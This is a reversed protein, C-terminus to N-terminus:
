RPRVTPGDGRSRRLVARQRGRRVHPGQRGQRDGQRRGRRRRRVRRRLGSRRGHARDGASGAAPQRLGRQAGAHPLDEAGPPEPGPGRALRRLKEARRTAPRSGEGRGLLALIAVQTGAAATKATLGEAGSKQSLATLDDVQPYSNQLIWLIKGANENAGLSTQAWPTELYTAKNQTPNHIDICYSQLRGSGEVSMEFLGAAINKTKGDGVDLRASDYTKLGDLTAVAGGQHHVDGEDAAANGAGALLGMTLLGATAAGAAARRATTRRGTMASASHLAFVSKGEPPVRSPGRSIHKM